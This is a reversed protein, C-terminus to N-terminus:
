GQTQPEKAQNIPEHVELGEGGLVKLEKGEIDVFVPRDKEIVRLTGELEALRHRMSNSGGGATFHSSLNVRVGNPTETVGLLRTAPPIESFYQQKKETVTPGALLSELAYHLRNAQHTQPIVRIVPVTVTQNEEARSFFLAIESPKLSERLSEVSLSEPSKPRPTFWQCGTVSALILGLILFQAIGFKIAGFQVAGHKTM